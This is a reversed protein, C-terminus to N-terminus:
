LASNLGRLYENNKEFDGHGQGQLTILTDGQKFLSKLKLSGGYYFEKDADGHFIVVRCAVKPLFSYTDFHFALGSLDVKPYLQKVADTLSYYPADLILMKPKNTSALMAAPGTGISYGMMVIKNEPYIATVTDYVTQVDSFLQSENKITGVSKGYGRYDVVFFDYGLSTYFPALQGWKEMGGTNGHLYLIVGRAASDTHFLIAHLLIGDITKIVHEEYKGGFRFQYKKDLRKAPFIQRVDKRTPNEPAQGFVHHSALCLILLFRLPMKM